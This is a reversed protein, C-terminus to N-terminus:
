LGINFCGRRLTSSSFSARIARLWAQGRQVIGGDRTRAEARQATPVSGPGAGDEWGSVAKSHPLWAGAKTQPLRAEGGRPECCPQSGWLALMAPVSWFGPHFGPTLFVSCLSVSISVSVAGGKETETEGRQRLGGGWTRSEASYGQGRTRNLRSGRSM